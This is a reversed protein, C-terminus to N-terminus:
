PTPSCRPARPSAPWSAWCTPRCCTRRATSSGPSAPSCCSRRQRRDGAQAPRPPRLRLRAPPLRHDLRLPGDGLPGGGHRLRLRPRGAPLPRGLGHRLDHHPHLPARRDPRLPDVAPQPLRPGHLARSGPGLRAGRRAAPTSPLLVFLLVGVALGAIAWASGSGAGRRRRLRDDSRGRVPGGLRRGHRVDAHRRDADRRPLGPLLHQRHLRRGGARLRRGRGAPPARRQRPLQQRHRVAARRHRGGGRRVAGGPAPRPSGDGRGRGPQVALLRLLLPRGALRRRRRQHRLGRLAGADDGGAGLPPRVPLLLVGGDGALRDVVAKGGVARAAGRTM